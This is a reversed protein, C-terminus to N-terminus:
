FYRSPGFRTQFARKAAHAEGNEGFKNLEIRNFHRELEILQNTLDQFMCIHLFNFSSFVFLEVM